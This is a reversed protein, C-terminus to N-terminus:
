LGYHRGGGHAMNHGINYAAYQARRNVLSYLVLLVIVIFLFVVLAILLVYGTNKVIQYKTGDTDVVAIAKVVAAAEESNIDLMTGTFDHLDAIGVDTKTSVTGNFHAFIVDLKDLLVANRGAVDKLTYMRTQKAVSEETNRVVIGTFNIFTASGMGDEAFTGTYDKFRFAAGKREM